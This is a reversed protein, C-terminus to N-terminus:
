RLNAFVQRVQAEPDGPGVVSGAADVPGQGSILLLRGGEILLAHSYPATTAAVRDTLIPTVRPQESMACRAGRIEAGARRGDCGDRGAGRTPPRRPRSRGRGPRAAGRGPSPPTGPPTPASARRRRGTGGGGPRVPSGPKRWERGSRRTASTCPGNKPRSS